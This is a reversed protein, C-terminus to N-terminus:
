PTKSIETSLTLNGLLILAQGRIAKGQGAEKKGIINEWKEEGSYGIIHQHATLFSSV